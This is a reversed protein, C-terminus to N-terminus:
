GVGLEVSEGFLGMKLWAEPTCEVTLALLLVSFGVSFLFIGGFSLLPVGDVGSFFAGILPCRM